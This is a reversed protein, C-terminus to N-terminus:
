GSTTHGSMAADRELRNRGRASTEIQIIKGMAKLVCDTSDSPQFNEDLMEIKEIEIQVHSGSQLVENNDGGTEVFHAKPFTSFELNEPMNSLPIFISLPGLDAFVGIKMVRSVVAEVMDGEHPRLVQAIYHVRYEVSGNQRNVIGGETNKINRIQLIFGHTESCSGVVQRKLRDRIVHHLNYRLSHPKVVIPEILEKETAFRQVVLESM